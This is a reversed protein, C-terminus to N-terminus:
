FRVSLTSVPGPTFGVAVGRSPQDILLILGSTAMAAGGSGLIVWVVEAGRAENYQERGEDMDSTSFILVDMGFSLLALVGGTFLLSRGTRRRKLLVESSVAPRNAAGKVDVGLRKLRKQADKRMTSFSSDGELAGGEEFDGLFRRLDTVARDDQGLCQAMLGSWYLLVPQPEVDIATNLQGWITSVEKYGAVAGGVDGGYIEACYEVQAESARIALDDASVVEEPEQAPAACPWGLLVALMTLLPLRHDM